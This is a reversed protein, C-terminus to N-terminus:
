SSTMGCRHIAASAEKTSFGMEVLTLLKKDEASLDM